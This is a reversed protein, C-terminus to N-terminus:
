GAKPDIMDDWLSVMNEFDPYCLSSNRKCLNLAVDCMLRGSDLTVGLINPIEM